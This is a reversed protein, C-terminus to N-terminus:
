VHKILGATTEFFSFPCSFCSCLNKCLICYHFEFRTKFNKIFNGDVM